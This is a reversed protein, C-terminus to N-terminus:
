PPSGRLASSGTSRITSRPARSRSGGKTGSAYCPRFARGVHDKEKTSVHASALHAWGIRAHHLDDRLLQRTAAKATTSVCRSMGERLCVTALTENICSHMVLALLRSLPPPCDGYVPEDVPRCRPNQIPRGLYREAVGRCIEAHRVEDAVASAALALVEPAAGDLLLGRVIQASFAAATLEVDARRSWERGIRERANADLERPMIRHLKVNATRRLESVCRPAQVLVRRPSRPRLHRV